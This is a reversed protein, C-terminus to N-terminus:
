IFININENIIGDISDGTDDDQNGNHDQTNESLTSTNIDEVEAKKDTNEVNTVKVDGRTNIDEKSPVNDPAKPAEGNTEVKVNSVDEKGKERPNHDIVMKPSTDNLTKQTEQKNSKESNLKETNLQTHENPMGSSVDKPKDHMQEKPEIAEPKNESAKLETEMDVSQHNAPVKMADLAPPNQSMAPVNSKKMEDDSISKIWALVACLPRFNIDFDFCIRQCSHPKGIKDVLPGWSSKLTSYLLTFERLNDECYKMDKNEVPTGSFNPFFKEVNSNFTESNLPITIYQCIKYATDYVGLCLYKDLTPETKDWTQIPYESTTCNKTYASEYLVKSNECLNNDKKMVDGISKTTPSSTVVVSFILLVFFDLMCNIRFLHANRDEM